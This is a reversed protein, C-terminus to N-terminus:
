ARHEVWVGNKRRQWLIDSYGAARIADVIDQHLARTFAERQGCFGRITASGTLSTSTVTGAATYDNDFFRADLGARLIHVIPETVRELFAPM